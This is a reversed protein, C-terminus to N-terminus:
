TSFTSFEVGCNQPHYIVVFRNREPISLEIKKIVNKQLYTSLRM